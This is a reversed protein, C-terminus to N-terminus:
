LSNDPTGFVQTWYHNYNINGTDEKLFYYGVGIEQLDPNLINARHGTSNMWSQVVAEPTQYGAAINEAWRSFDYGTAEIRDGASSGDLGAHQFFDQVAMNETHTQAAQTLLPDATLPSLNLQSREQNTLEVVKDLFNGTVTPNDTAERIELSLNYDANKIRKNRPQVRLYYTTDPELTASIKEDKKSGNTSKDIVKGKEPLLYLDANATLGTLKIEVERQEEVTLKYFDKGDSKGVSEDLQFKDSLSGIDFAKEKSNGPDAFERIELSLNYDANKIRKNRPQVRLYYTTDPELTASIKEDKKSGNTSKDIVKGKEPLLYLDANATLGTLKIEVERQEEVTLKYFDKGDSKGVSEDLQFKDSLSGIDFAKEKSNGPDSNKGNGLKIGGLIQDSNKQVLM